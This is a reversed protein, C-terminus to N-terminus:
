SLLATEILPFSCTRVKEKTSMKLSIVFEGNDRRCVAFDGSKVSRLFDESVGFREFFSVANMIEVGRIENKTSVDVVVDGFLENTLFKEDQRFGKSVYFIDVDARYPLLRM